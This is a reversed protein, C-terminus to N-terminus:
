IDVVFNPSCNFQAVAVTLFYNFIPFNFFLQFIDNGFSFSRLKLSRSAEFPRSQDFMELMQALFINICNANKDRSVKANNMQFSDFKRKKQSFVIFCYLLCMSAFQITFARIVLMRRKRRLGDPQECGNFCFPM